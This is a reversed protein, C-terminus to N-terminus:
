GSYKVFVLIHGLMIIINGIFLYYLGLMIIGFGSMVSYKALSIIMMQNIMM